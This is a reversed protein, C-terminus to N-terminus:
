AHCVCNPLDFWFWAVTPNTQESVAAEFEDLSIIFDQNSDVERLKLVFEEESLVGDSNADARDLALVIQFADLAGDGDTDVNESSLGLHEELDDALFDYDSDVVDSITNECDLGLNVIQSETNIRECYLDVYSPIGTRQGSENLLFSFDTQGLYLDVNSGIGAFMLGIFLHSKGEGFEWDNMKLQSLNITQAFMQDTFGLRTIEWNSLDLEELGSALNFMLRMDGVNSVDWTSLDLSTLSQVRDFM